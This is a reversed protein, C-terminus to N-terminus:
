HPFVEFVTGCGGGCIGSGGAVTTGYLNGTSDKILGGYPIGGDNSGSLFQYYISGIYGGAGNPALKFVVGCGSSCDSSGGESATGYLTGSNDMLLSGYPAGAVGDPLPYLVSESYGGGSPALRFVTGAGTVGGGTRTTGYLNGPSDMILAAYPNAGDSNGGKFSYLVSEVYGGSGNPALKFVTGCGGSCSNNGGATTTGYFNAVSDMVLGAYPTAGDATGGAFSYLVSETYGGSGNPALKFVTGCGGSCSGSGGAITTGYLNGTSDMILSAYPSAGDVTGGVFSYL